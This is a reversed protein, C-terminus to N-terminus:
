VGGGHVVPAFKEDNDQQYQAERNLRERSDRHFTPQTFSAYVLRRMSVQRMDHQAAVAVAMRHGTQLM